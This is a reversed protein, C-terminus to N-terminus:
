PRPGEPEEAAPVNASVWQEVLSRLGEHAAFDVGPALDGTKAEPYALRLAEGLAMEGGDIMEELVRDIRESPPLCRVSAAWALQRDLEAFFQDPSEQFYSAERTIRGAFGGFDGAREKEGFFAGTFDIHPVADAPMDQLVLQVVEDWDVTKRSVCAERLHQVFPQDSHVELGTEQLFSSWAHDPSAWRGGAEIAIQGTGVQRPTFLMAGFANNDDVSFGVADLALRHWEKLHETPLPTTSTTVDYHNSM